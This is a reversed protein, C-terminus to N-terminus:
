ECWEIGKKLVMGTCGEPLHEPGPLPMGTKWLNLQRLIEPM